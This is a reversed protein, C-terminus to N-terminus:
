DSAAAARLVDPAYVAEGLEARMADIRPDLPDRFHFPLQDSLILRCDEQTRADSERAWSKTVQDRLQAPEFAELNRQVADPFAASPLGYTHRVHDGGRGFGLGPASTGEGATFPPENPEPALKTVSARALPALAVNIARAVPPGVLTGHARGV